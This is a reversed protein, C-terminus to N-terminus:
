QEARNPDDTIGRRANACVVWSKPTHRCASTLGPNWDISKILADAAEMCGRAPQGSLDPIQLQVAAIRALCQDNANLASAVTSLGTMLRELPWKGDYASSLLYEIENRARVVFRGHLRQILPTRGLLLGQETVALGLNDKHFESLRWMRHMM